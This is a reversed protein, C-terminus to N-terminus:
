TWYIDESKKEEEDANKKWTVIQYSSNMRITFMAVYMGFRVLIPVRSLDTPQYAFESLVM